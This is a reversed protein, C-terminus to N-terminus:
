ACAGSAAPMGTQCGSRGARALMRGALARVEAGVEADHDGVTVQERGFQQRNRAESQDVHMGRQQRAPAARRRDLPRDERAIGLGADDIM